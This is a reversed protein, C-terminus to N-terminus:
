EIDADNLTHRQKDTINNIGDHTTCRVNRVNPINVAGVLEM